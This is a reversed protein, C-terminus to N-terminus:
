VALRKVQRTGWDCVLRVLPTKTGPYRAGAVLLDCLPKSKRRLGQNMVFSVAHSGVLSGVVVHVSGPGYEDRLCSKPM